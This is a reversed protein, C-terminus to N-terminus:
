LLGAAKAFLGGQGALYNQLFGWLLMQVAPWYVLEILRAFSSRLLYWYRLVMAAVRRLSFTQVAASKEARGQWGGGGGGGGRRESRECPSPLAGLERSSM